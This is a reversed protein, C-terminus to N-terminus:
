QAKHKEVWGGTKLGTVRLRSSFLRTRCSVVEVPSVMCLGVLAMCCRDTYFPRSQMKFYLPETEALCVRSGRRPTASLNAAAPDCRLPQITTTPKPPQAGQGCKYTNRRSINQKKREHQPVAFGSVSRIFGDLHKKEQLRLRM